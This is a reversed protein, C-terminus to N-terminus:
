QHKRSRYFEDKEESKQMSIIIQELDPKKIKIDTIRTQKMIVELVESASIYRSNYDYSITNGELRYRVIPLDDINPVAGDFSVTLTNIPLTKSRLIDESGNFVLRGKELIALRSCVNSIGTMDHSTILITMGEGAKERIIEELAQKGTEDLGVEPEDLIMLEPELLFAAALEVRRRQGVSLGKLRENEFAGFNFREALLAYRKDYEAEQIGYMDRLMGLGVLATDEDQLLKIGTICVSLRSAYKSRFKVPDERMVSVRGREPLLLGSALRVLTTKGSGTPGILGTVEGQKVHLSVDKVIFKSVDEFNIM